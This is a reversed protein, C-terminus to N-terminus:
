SGATSYQNPGGTGPQIYFYLLVLLGIIPILHLLLWWGSRDTDHLRRVSVALGPILLFLGTLASIPQLEMTGPDPLGLLPAVVIMDVLQAVSLTIIAFLTWWWFEPRAARGQFETYKSLCTRIAEPFTM